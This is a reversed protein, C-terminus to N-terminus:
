LLNLPISSEKEGQFLYLICFFLSSDKVSSLPQVRLEFAAGPLFGQMGARKRPGGPHGSGTRKTMKSDGGVFVTGPMYYVSMLYKYLHLPCGFAM